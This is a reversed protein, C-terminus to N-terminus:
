LQRFGGRVYILALVGPSWEPSWESLTKPPEELARKLPELDPAIPSDAQYTLEEVGFRGLALGPIVAEGEVERSYPGLALLASKPDALM